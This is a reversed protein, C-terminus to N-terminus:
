RARAQALWQPIDAIRLQWLSVLYVAVGAAILVGLWIAQGIFSHPAGSPGAQFTMLLVVAVGMLLTSSVIGAIRLATSRAVAIWGRRWLVILLLLGGTWGSLAIAAAIGVHGYAPFLLVAAIGSVALGALATLMPTRADEHAFSIAGLVKEIAHGALGGAIATLAAAVAMTDETGFAGREFLVRTIPVSLIALGTAAPLSLGLAVELAHSKASAILQADKEVISAAIHRTLV